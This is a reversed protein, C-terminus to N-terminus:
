KLVCAIRTHTQVIYYIIDPLIEIALYSIWQEIDQIVIGDPIDLIVISDLIGERVKTIGVLMNAHFHGHSRVRWIELGAPVSNCFRISSVYIYRTM